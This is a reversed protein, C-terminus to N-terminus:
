CSDSVYGINRRKPNQAHNIQTARRVAGTFERTRTQVMGYHDYVASHEDPLAYRPSHNSRDLGVVQVNVTNSWM